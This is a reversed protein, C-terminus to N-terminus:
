QKVVRQTHLVHGQADTVSLIYLGPVLASTNIHLVKEKWRMQESYVKQGALNSLSVGTLENQVANKWEVRLDSVAPNPYVNIQQGGAVPKVSTPDNYQEYYYNFRQILTNTNDYVNLYTPNSFSNYVLAGKNEMAWATGDFSEITMTDPLNQANIHKLMRAAPEFGSGINQYLYRNQSFSTGPAYSFSDKILPTLGTGFDISILLDKLKNGPYYTLDYQYAPMWSSTAIDWGEAQLVSLEGTGLYTLQDRQEPIWAGGDYFYITDSSIKGATTYNFVKRNSSDWQTGNHILYLCQTLKGGTYTNLYRDGNDIVGGAYVERTYTAITMDTNYTIRVKDILDGNDDYRAVSDAIVEPKYADTGYLFPDGYIPDYYYNYLFEELNYASTNLGTYRYRTTDMLAPTGGTLDYSSEAIVREKLVTTKAADTGALHGILRSAREHHQRLAPDLYRSLSQKQAMATGAGLLALSLTLLKKM